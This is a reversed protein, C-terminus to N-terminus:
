ALGPPARKRAEPKATPPAACPVSAAGPASPNDINQLVRTTGLKEVRGGSREFDAIHELIRESEIRKHNSDVGAPPGRTNDRANGRRKATM